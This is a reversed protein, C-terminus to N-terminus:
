PLQEVRVANPSAGGLNLLLLDRDNASGTYRVFGDMNADELHYGPLTATPLAGGLITLMADRDNNAGTFKLQNDDVSNGAWLGM